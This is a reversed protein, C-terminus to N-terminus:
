SSKSWLKNRRLYSPCDKRIPHHNTSGSLRTTGKRGPNKYAVSCTSGKTTKSPSYTTDSTFIESKRWNQSRRRYPHCCCRHSTVSSWKKSCNPNAIPLPWNERCNLEWRWNNITSSKEVNSIKKYRKGRWRRRRKKSCNRWPRSSRSKRRVGVPRNLRCSNWADRGKRNKNSLKACVDNMSSKQWSSKSNYRCIARRRKSAVRMSGRSATGESRSM